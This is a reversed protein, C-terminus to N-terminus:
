RYQNIDIINAYNQCLEALSVSSVEACFGAWLPLYDANNQKIAAQIIPAILRQQQGPALVKGAAQQKRTMANQLTRTPQGLWVSTETVLMENHELLKQRYSSPIPSESVTWFPVDLMIASVHNRLQTAAATPTQCDGWAILPKRVTQKAHYLLTNLPFNPADFSNEFSSQLGASEVGQLIIGDITTNDIAVAELMNSAFALMVIGQKHCHAMFEDTPIGNRFILVPPTQAVVAKCIANVEPFAPAKGVKINLAHFAPKLYANAATVDRENLKSQTEALNIVVGFPAQTQKKITHIDQTINELTQLDTSYVGLAGQNSIAAVLSAQKPYATLPAQFLPLKLKLKKIINM